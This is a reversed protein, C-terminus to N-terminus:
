DCVVLDGPDVNLLLDGDPMREASVQAAVERGQLVRVEVGFGTAEVEARGARGALQARLPPDGLRLAQGAALAAGSGAEVTWPTMWPVDPDDPQGATLRLRLLSAGAADKLELDLPGGSEDSLVATVPRDGLELSEQVDAV